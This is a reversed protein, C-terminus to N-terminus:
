PRAMMRVEQIGRITTRRCIPKECSVFKNLYQRLRGPIIPIPHAINIKGTIGVIIYARRMSEGRCDDFSRLFYLFSSLCAWSTFDMHPATSAGICSTSSKNIIIRPISVRGHFSDSPELHTVSLRPLTAHRGLRGIAETMKETREIMLATKSRLM